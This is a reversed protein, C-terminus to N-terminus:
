VSRSDRDRLLALSHRHVAVDMQGWIKSEFSRLLVPVHDVKLDGFYLIRGRDTQEIGDANQGRKSMVLDPNVIESQRFTISSVAKLATDPDAILRINVRNRVQEM